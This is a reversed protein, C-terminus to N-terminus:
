SNTTVESEITTTSNKMTPKIKKANGGPAEALTLIPGCTCTSWCTYIMVAWGDCVLMSTAVVETGAYSFTLLIVLESLPCVPWCHLWNKKRHLCTTVGTSMSYTDVCNRCASM